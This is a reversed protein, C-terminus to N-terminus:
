TTALTIELLEGFEELRFGTWELWTPDKMVRDVYEKVVEKCPVSTFLASVDFSTLVEDEEIVLETLMEILHKCNKIHHKTKM